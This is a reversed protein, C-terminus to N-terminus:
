HPQVCGLTISTLLLAARSAAAPRACPQESRSQSAPASAELQSRRVRRHYYTTVVAPERRLAGLVCSPQSTSHTCSMDHAHREARLAPSRPPTAPGYVHITLRQRLNDRPRPTQADNCNCRRPTHAHSSRFRSLSILLKTTAGFLCFDTSCRSARTASAQAQSCRLRLARSPEGLMFISGPSIVSM